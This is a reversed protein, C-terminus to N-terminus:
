PSCKRSGSPTPRYHPVPYVRVGSRIRFPRVEMRGSRVLRRARQSTYSTSYGTADAMDMVTLWGEPVEDEPAESVSALLKLLDANLKKM